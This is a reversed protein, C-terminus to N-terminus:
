NKLTFRASILKHDSRKFYLGKIRNVVFYSDTSTMIHDLQSYTAGRRWTEIASHKGYTTHVKLKFQLLLELFYQGTENTVTHLLAPGLHGITRAGLLDRGLHANFDGMLILNRKQINTLRNLEHSLSSYVVDLELERSPLHVVIIYFYQGDKNKIKMSIIRDSVRRVLDVKLNSGKRLLIGVGRRISRGHESSRGSSLYWKYQSTNIFQSPTMTEQVGCIDIAQESLEGDIELQDQPISAGLLNWTGIRYENCNPSCNPHSGVSDGVPARVEQGGVDVSM